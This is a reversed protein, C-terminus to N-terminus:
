SAARSRNLLIKAHPTFNDLRLALYLQTFLNKEIANFVLSNINKQGIRFLFHPLKKGLPMFQRYISSLLAIDVTYNVV